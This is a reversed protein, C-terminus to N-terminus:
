FAKGILFGIITGAAGLGVFQIGATWPDLGLLRGKAFGLSLLTAGSFLLVFPWPHGTSGLVCWTFIYPSLAIMGTTLFAFFTAIGCKVSMESDEVKVLGLEWMMMTDTLVQKNTSILEVM